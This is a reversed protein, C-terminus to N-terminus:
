SALADLLGMDKSTLEFDFIDLNEELHKKKTSHTAFAAGNQVIWRLAVQAWSKGYQKGMDACKSRITENFKSGMSGGLPSWAQVLVKRQFNKQLIGIPHYALNYRLQNVMPPVKLEPDEMLCDLQKPSFNSVALTKVQKAQVMEELARWQGRICDCDSGPPYDLLLQDLFNVSGAAFAEINKRGSQRTFEYASDVNNRDRTTWEYMGTAKDIIFEQEANPSHVSGVIFLDQRAVHSDVCAQAVAQQHGTDVFFHRYGVQLATRSLNYAVQDSDYIQLGFSVLPFSTIGDALITTAGGAVSEAASPDKKIIRRSAFATWRQIGLLFFKEIVTTSLLAGAVIALLAVACAPVIIRRLEMMHFTTGTSSQSDLSKRIHESTRSVEPIQLGSREVTLGRAKTLPDIGRYLVTQHAEEECGDDFQQISCFVSEQSQSEQFLGPLLFLCKKIERPVARLRLFLAGLGAIQKGWRDTGPVSGTCIRRVRDITCETQCTHKDTARIKIM